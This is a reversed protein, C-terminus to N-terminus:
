LNSGRLRAKELARGIVPNGEQGGTADIVAPAVLEMVREWMFRTLDEVVADPGSETLALAAGDAGGAAGLILAKLDAMSDPIIGCITDDLATEIFSQALKEAISIPIKSALNRAEMKIRITDGNSNDSAICVKYLAASQLPVSAPDTLVSIYMKYNTLTLVYSGKITTFLAPKADFDGSVVGNIGSVAVIYGPKDYSVYDFDIDKVLLGKVKTNFADFTILDVSGCIEPVDFSTPRQQLFDGVTSANPAQGTFPGHPCEPLAAVFAASEAEEEVSAPTFAESNMQHLIKKVAAELFRTALTNELRGLTTSGDASATNAKNFIAALLDKGDALSEPIRECIADDIKNRVIHNVIPEAIALPVTSTFGRPRLTVSIERRGDAFDCKSYIKAESLPTNADDFAVTLHVYYNKMEVIARTKIDPLLLLNVDVDTYLKGSIGDIKVVVAPKGDAGTEIDTTISSVTLKDMHTNFAHFNRVTPIDLDGCVEPLYFSTPRYQWLDGVNQLTVFPGVNVCEPPGPRSVPAAFAGGLMLGTAVAVKKFGVM